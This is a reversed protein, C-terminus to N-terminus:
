KTQERYTEIILDIVGLAEASEVTSDDYDGRMNELTEIDAPTLEIRLHASFLAM